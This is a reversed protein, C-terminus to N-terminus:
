NVSEIGLVALGVPLQMDGLTDRFADRVSEITWINRELIPARIAPHTMLSLQAGTIRVIQGNVDNSLDSLLFTVVPVNAEPPIAPAPKPTGNGAHDSFYQNSDAMMRTAGIPSIANVRVGTGAAEGAWSYTLSAVAGKTAAYCGLAEMGAQAGSVVNIISGSGRKYMWRIAHMACNYTGILNADIMARFDAERSVELRAIRQISANNVLGDITGFRDICFAILESAEGSIAVNAGHAVAQGGDRCIDAAVQEALSLDLDNVVVAAGLQAAGRAYAEGVGRGAGTIVVYKGDLEPM